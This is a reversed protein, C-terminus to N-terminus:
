DMIAAGLSERLKGKYNENFTKAKAALAAIDADLQPDALGAYMVSLDWRLNETGLSPVQM